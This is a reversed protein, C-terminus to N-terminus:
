QFGISLYLQTRGSSTVGLGVSAPGIPTPHRAELGFGLGLSHFSIDGRTQWVNGAGVRATVRAQGLVRIGCGISLAAAQPGWLEERAYGPLLSPGGVRFQEYVPLEPRATGALLDTHLTARAGIPVVVKAALRVRWYERSAGLTALNKEASFTVSEGASPSDSNNLRDLTLAATLARVQDRRPEFDLGLRAETELSGLQLGLEALFSRGIARRLAVAVGQRDFRARNVFEHERFVRPTEQVRQAQVAYGVPLGVLRDGTLALRLGGSGDSLFAELNAREGWGLLNRNRLRLFGRAEDAEDYGLGLEITQRVAEKVHLVVALRGDGAPELSPWCSEFLDTAYVADMGRLASELDFPRGPVVSFIKLILREDVREAGEVEVRAVTFGNPSRGPRKPSPDAGSARGSLRRLEEMHLWAAQRGAAILLEIGSYDNLSHRGLDPRITVEAAEHYAQNRSRALVASVQAAVGLADRVLPERPPSTVDVAVVVDAGMQRAVDAPINDALGGDVLLRGGVTIPAFAVPLSLSARVARDLSGSSLVIREASELDAAVARFPIPLRDFDGAAQESAELLYRALFRNVRYDPRTAEPLRLRWFEYGIRLVPEVEGVRLSVPSLTREVQGAFVEQWAVSRAIDELEQASRGSAYLAGIAAGMSTGAICDIPIGAEEFARLVGIHALGRAGGGSLALCVKPRAPSEAAQPASAATAWTAFSGMVCAAVAANGPWALARPVMRLPKM